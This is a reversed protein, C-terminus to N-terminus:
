DRTRKSGRLGERCRNRRCAPTEAEILHYGTAGVIELRPFLTNLPAKGSIWTCLILEADAIIKQCQLKKMVRPTHTYIERHFKPLNLCRVHCLHRFLIRVIQIRTRTDNWRLKWPQRLGYKCGYKCGYRGSLMEPRHIKRCIKLLCLMGCVHACARARLEMLTIINWNRVVIRYFKDHTRANANTSCKVLELGDRQFLTRRLCMVSVGFERSRFLLVRLARTLNFKLSMANDKDKGLRTCPFYFHSQVGGTVDHM